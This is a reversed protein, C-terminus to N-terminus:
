NKKGAAIEKQIFGHKMLRSLHRSVESKSVDDIENTINTLILPNENLLNLIKIRIPNSLESILDAYEIM